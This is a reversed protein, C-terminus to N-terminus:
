GVDGRRIGAPFGALLALFRELDERKHGASVTVRLRAKGKPVTPPRIAPVWMGNNLFAEAMELAKQADGVIVPFIPSGDPTEYGLQALGARLFQRNEELALRLAPEEQLVRIAELAAAAIMPPLATAFIFPRSFNVLYEIYTSSAAAFGGLTGLSKSLTGTIIDIRDALGEAAPVGGGSAGFLGTGHADDAVLLAGYKEKLRVLENLDARDGDMSFITDTVLIKRAASNASSLIEECRAYNKHPFVRMEAGSLRAGDILSAHCLKDMLILDGPRAFTGLVGLNALWGASFILARDRGKLAVFTEELKEHAGRSGSVLRAAGAGAGERAAAAQAAAIVRPHRSLGLYDNGCFLLVEKGKYFARVSSPGSELTRLFRYLHEEKLMQIEEEFISTVSNM